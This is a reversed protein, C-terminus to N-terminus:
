TGRRMDKRWKEAEVQGTRSNGWYALKWEAVLEVLLPWYRMVQNRVSQKEGESLQAYPQVILREWREVDSATLRLDGMSDRFGKNHLYKQWDAWRQHEIAALTEILEDKTM